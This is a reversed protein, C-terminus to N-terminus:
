VEERGDNAGKETLRNFWSEDGMELALEILDRKDDPHLSNGELSNVDQAFLDVTLGDFEGGVAKITVTSLQGVLPPSYLVYGDFRQGFRNFGTVWQGQRFGKKYNGM